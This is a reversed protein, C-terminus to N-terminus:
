SGVRNFDQVLEYERYGGGIWDGVGMVRFKQGNPDVVVEDMELTTETWILWYKWSREGEPKMMLRRIPFPQLVAEFVGQYVGGISETVKGNAVTKTVRKFVTPDTWEWLAESVDPFSM